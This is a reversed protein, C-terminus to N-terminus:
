KVAPRVTLTLGDVQEVIVVDGAELRKGDASVARWLAGQVFVHGVPDLPSRVEAHMGVLEEQGTRVQEHRTAVVKSVVFLFFGGLMAATFIVIPVSIDFAESDTDFLLLGGAILAAIGGAALAGHSVVFAEAVLLGFALAILLLGAVNVPLQATGYLGLILLVGGLAGPLIAGPNFLEFAIGALGLTILLFAMSPNILLALAKFKFPVDRREVRAGTTDLTRAKPGKVRFGDLQRLLNQEDRAVLDILGARKAETATVNTAKRVMEEALDPNRGHGDALARVYAAADNRVKRGLVRDQEGPGISIPTASGINTQPAMAAVDAAETVFLGASAARAGDPSVYVVVPMPAGILDKVIDRMSDDLGGPTDLRFIVLYAGDGRADDLSEDVWQASAPDITTDLDISVVLPGAPAAHASRPPGALCVVLLLAALALLAAALSAAVGPAGVRASTPGIGVAGCARSM